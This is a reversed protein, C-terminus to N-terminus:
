FSQTTHSDTSQQQVREKEGAVPILAAAVGAVRLRVEVHGAAKHTSLLAVQAAPRAGERGRLGAAPVTTASVPCLVAPVGVLWVDHSFPQAVPALHLVFAFVLLLPLLLFVAPATAAALPRSCSRSSRCCCCSAIPAIGAVDHPGHVLPLFPLLLLVKPTAAEAVHPTTTAVVLPITCFHLLLLSLHRVHLLLLCVALTIPLLLLLISPVARLLMASVVLLGVAGVCAIITSPLPITLLLPVILALLLTTQCSALRRAENGLSQNHQAVVTYM